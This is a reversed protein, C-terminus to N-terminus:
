AEIPLNEYVGDVLHPVSVGINEQCALRVDEQFGRQVLEEGSSSTWVRDLLGSGAVVYSAAAMAAEPSRVGPLREIIAGAGLWDELAPRLSGDPWREGAPIVAVRRGLKRAADAVLEANRLCGLLTPTEGTALSLTAGNPSPLVLLSGAPIGLLSSPSLSFGDSGRPEALIAGARQAREFASADDYVHPIVRADRSVAIEVCTSFSLVDVIVVVDCPPALEGVGHAGWECRVDYDAQDTFSM